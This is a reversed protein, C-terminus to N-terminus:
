TSIQRWHLAFGRRICPFPVLHSQGHLRLGCVLFDTAFGPTLKVM